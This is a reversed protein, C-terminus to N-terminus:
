VANYKYADSYAAAYPSRFNKLDWRNLITGLVCTGDEHFRQRALMAADRKTQGSRLVLIVGDSHGGLVRADAFDLM